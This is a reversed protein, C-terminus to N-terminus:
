THSIIHHGILQRGAPDLFTLMTNTPPMSIPQFGPPPLILSFNDNNDSSEADEDDSSMDVVAPQLSTIHTCLAYAFECCLPSVEQIWRRLDKQLIQPPPDGLVLRTTEEVSCSTLSPLDLLRTFWQVKVTFRGHVVKTTPCQCIIHSEDGLIRTRSALCYLCVRDQYATRPNWFAYHLHSPIIHITHQTRTQLLELQYPSSQHTIYSPTKYM